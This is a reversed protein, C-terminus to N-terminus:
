DLIKQLLPPFKQKTKPYSAIKNWIKIGQYKISKRLRTTTYQPINLIYINTSSRTNFSSIKSTKSFLHQISPTLNHRSFWFVMKAVKHKHLDQLRLTNLKSYYPTVHDSKKAMVSLNLLKTKYPVYNPCLLQIHPDGLQCPM